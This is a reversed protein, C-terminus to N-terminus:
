QALILIRSQQYNLFEKYDDNDNSNNNNYNNSNPLVKNLRDYNM